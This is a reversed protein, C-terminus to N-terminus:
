RCQSSFILDMFISATCERPLSKACASFRAARARHWDGKFTRPLVASECSLVFVKFPALVCFIKKQVSKITRETSVSVLRQPKTRGFWAADRNTHTQTRARMHSRWHSWRTQSGRVQNFPVLNVQESVQFHVQSQVTVWVHRVLSFGSQLRDIWNPSSSQQEWGCCCTTRLQAPKWHTSKSM